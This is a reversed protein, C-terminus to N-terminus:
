DAEFGIDVWFNTGPTGATPYDISAGYKFTGNGVHEGTSAAYFKGGQSLTPDSTFRGTEAPYHGAANPFHVAATYYTAPVISLPTDLTVDIWRPGAAEGSTSGSAVKAGAQNYVGVQRATSPDDAPKWFSVQKVKGTQGGVTYFTMGVTVAIDVNGAGPSVAGRNFFTDLPVAPVYVTFNLTNSIAEGRKVYVPVTRPAGTLIPDNDATEIQGASTFHSQHIIGGFVIEDGAQLAVGLITLKMSIGLAANAPSLSNIVITPTVPPVPPKFPGQIEEKHRQSRTVM